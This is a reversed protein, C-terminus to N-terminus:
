RNREMMAAIIEDELQIRDALLEGLRSLDDSLSEVRGELRAVDYRDNFELIADTTEAIRPYIREAVARVARRRERNEAIYRYLQFHASAAYDVLSECFDQLAEETQPEAVFPRIRALEALRALTETRANVLTDLKERARARRDVGGPAQDGM